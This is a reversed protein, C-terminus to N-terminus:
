GRRRLHSKRRGRRSATPKATAAIRASSRPMSIKSRAEGAHVEFHKYKGTALVAQYADYNAKTGQWGGVPAVERDPGHDIFGVPITAVLQPLGGVHDGHYHTILVYDLHDLGARKAAAAIRDADRNNHGTWGTDILLSQGHPTVFLTAQGGEVDVFYIQLKGSGASTSQAAALPRPLLVVLIALFLSLCGCFRKLHSAPNIAFASGSIGSM